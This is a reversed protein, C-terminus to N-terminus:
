QEEEQLINEMHDIVVVCDPDVYRMVKVMQEKPIAVCGLTYTGSMTESCHLFIASGKGPTGDENWSINLCYDYQGDYDILHESDETNLDPDDAISVMENYHHGERQDGSWYDDDTVQHYEIACGPDEDIGFAANFRFVGVPTRRDGERTKDLGYKGIYGGADVLQKWRGEEDRQHMSVDATTGGASAIVLIQEAGEAADLSGVWDPSYEAETVYSPVTEQEATGSSEANGGDGTSGCAPLTVCMILAAFAGFIRKTVYHKMSM